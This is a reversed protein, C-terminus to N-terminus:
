QAGTFQAMAPILQGAPWVQRILEAVAPMQTELAVPM